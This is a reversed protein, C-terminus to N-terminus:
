LRAVSGSTDPDPMDSYDRIHWRDSAQHTRYASPPPNVWAPVCRLSRTRWSAAARNSAPMDAISTAACKSTDVFDAYVHLRPRPRQRPPPAPIWPNWRLRTSVSHQVPAGAAAADPPQGPPTPIYRPDPTAGQGPDDLDDGRHEVDPAADLAGRQEQVPHPPGASVWVGFPRVHRPLSRRTAVVFIAQPLLTARLNPAHIQKASSAPCVSLGALARVHAGRPLVGMTFTVPLPEPRM